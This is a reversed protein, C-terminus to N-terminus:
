NAIGEFQVRICITSSRNRFNFVLKASKVVTLISDIVPFKRGIEEIHASLASVVCVSNLNCEVESYKSASYVTLFSSFKPHQVPFLQKFPFQCERVVLVIVRVAVNIGVARACKAAHATGKQGFLSSM